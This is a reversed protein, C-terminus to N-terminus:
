SDQAVPEAPATAPYTPGDGFEAYPKRQVLGVAKMLVFYLIAACLLSNISQIGWHWWYGVAFSAVWAIIAVPNWAEVRLPLRGNQRGESLPARRRRLVYYDIVIVSAIPPISVGLVTLFWEFKSLIGIASLITGLIGVVLTMLGRNVRFGFLTDVGNVFGLSAGYLNWDNIKLTGLILVVTGIVGSTTTVIDIVNASRVAHALLVGSLGIMYEGFTIGVLTQKVVDMASRNYRTMDPTVTSGVIFGGAVVTTGAALSLASGPAGSSILGGLSHQHLESGISYLILAVFAPVTIFATWQMSLFGYIVIVTVGIGTLISWAWLPIGGILSYLGEAFIANQVGFWGISSVAIVLAIAASGYRGFGTWRSVLSTNLGERQGIIGTLIAVVELIVAGFTIAWFATWFTMGFGLTAGLLFGSLASMQGFRQVAVSGWSYRETHPVPALAYDDRGVALAQESTGHEPSTTM